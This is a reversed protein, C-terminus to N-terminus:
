YNVKLSTVVARGERINNVCRELTQSRHGKLGRLGSVFTIAEAAAGRIRERYPSSDDAMTWLLDVLRIAPAAGGQVM